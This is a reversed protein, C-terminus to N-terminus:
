FMDSINELPQVRLSSSVFFPGTEFCASEGGRGGTIIMQKVQAVFKVDM